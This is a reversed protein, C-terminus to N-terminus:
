PFVTRVPIRWGPVVDGGDLTDGPMLVIADAQPTHLRVERRRPNIVIVMRTGAELWDQVKEDVERYIDNPSIVEIALDPPGPFYGHIEGVEDERERRVFAVDPARVHDPNSGILFGVEAIYVEGLDNENVHIALHIGVRSASKGHYAGPPAMTRLEGRVLEYRHYGDDPMAFLEEATMLRTQTTM